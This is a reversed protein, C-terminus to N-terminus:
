TCIAGHLCRKYVSSRLNSKVQCLSLCIVWIILTDSYIKWHVNNWLEIPDVPSTRRRLCSCCEIVVHWICRSLLILENIGLSCKWITVGMWLLGDVKIGIILIKVKLSDVPRTGQFVLVVAVQLPFRVWLALVVDPHEWNNTLCNISM